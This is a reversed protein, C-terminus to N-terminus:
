PAWVKITYDWSVTCIGIGDPSVSVQNIRNQHGGGITGVVESKLTDWILCGFDSYCSYILRGSKSFDVSLVNVSDISSISKRKNDDLQNSLSYKSLECDSRLDFLKIIGNDSGTIFSHGQPFVRVTNIDYNSIFLSQVASKSRLDWIKCYGDCSGSIFLSSSGSPLTDLCLVDGTHENFNRIKDGKNLDWMICEMDGSGTIVQQNNIFECDSIYARHSKFVHQVKSNFYTQQVTDNVKYISLNNDLGGSAIFESNPSLACTLVWQNELEIAKKKLGTVPDWMIMYGDQSASLVQDSSSSWQVNSIKNQHGELTHYLKPNISHNPIPKLKVSQELLTSDRMRAKVNEVETYLTRAENRADNIKAQIIQDFDTLQQPTSKVPYEM